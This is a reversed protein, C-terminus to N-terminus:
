KWQPPSSKYGRYSANMRMICLWGCSTPTVWQFGPLPMFVQEQRPATRHGTTPSQAGRSLLHQLAGGVIAGLPGGLMLGIGTGLLWGM